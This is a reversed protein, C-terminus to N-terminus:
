SKYIANKALKLSNGFYLFTSMKKEFFGINSYIFHLLLNLDPGMKQALYPFSLKISSKMYSSPVSEYKKQM